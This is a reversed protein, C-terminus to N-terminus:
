DRGLGGGFDAIRGMGSLSFSILFERDELRDRLILFISWCAARYELRLEKELSREDELDHRHRYRVYVPRLASIAIQGDLYKALDEQYRLDLALSNGMEDEAGARVNFARLGEGSEPDIRLDFDLFSWPTPRAILEMRLDSFPRGRDLPDTVESRSDRIDYTQSLRLYLFEHYLVEGSDMNRRATFRNVIGWRTQHRNGIEDADLFHARFSPDGPTIYQYGIEPEITHRIKEISTEGPFNYIRHLFTSFRAAFELNGQREEGETTWYLRERYALEPTFELYRGPHFVASVAPRLSVREGTSGKERWFHISSADLRLFFPTTGLPRELLAFRVDPLLQLTSDSSQELEQTMKLQGTLNMGQWQRGAFIKSEIKERNFEETVEGFDELYDRSNVYEVDAALFFGAPLGGRHTWDFAYRDEAENLGSIYYGKFAGEGRNQHIYRYEAGTGVGLRSFYDLYFTADRNRAIAWYYAQSFQFGRRDSSGFRPLLFGSARETQVPFILYPTYLVPVDLIHFLVHRASAGKGLRVEVKRATFKWSPVEGPCTTFTGDEILYGQDGFKEILDGSVRFGRGETLLRGHSIRGSGTKMNLQLDEGEVRVQPHILRFGEFASAIQNEDDWVIRDSLLTWPGKILRVNGFAQLAQDPRDYELRDAELFVPDDKGASVEQCLAYGGQLLFFPLLFIFILRM